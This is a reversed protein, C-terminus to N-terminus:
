GVRLVPKSSAAKKDKCGIFPVAAVLTLAVVMREAIRAIRVKKM